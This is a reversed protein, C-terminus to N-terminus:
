GDSLRKRYRKRINTGNIGMERLDKREFLCVKRIETLNDIDREKCYLQAVKHSDWVSITRGDNKGVVLYVYKM